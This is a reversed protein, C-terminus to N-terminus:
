LRRGLTATLLQMAVLGPITAYRIAPNTVDHGFLRRYTYPQAKALAEVNARLTQPTV